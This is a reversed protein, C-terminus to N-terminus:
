PLRSRRELEEGLERLEAETMSDPTGDPWELRVPKGMVTAKGALLDALLRTGIDSGTRAALYHRNLEDIRMGIPRRFV